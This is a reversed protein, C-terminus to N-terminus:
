LRVWILYGAAFVGLFYPNFYYGPGRPFSPAAWARSAGALLLLIALCARPPWGRCEFERFMRMDINYPLSDFLSPLAMSREVKKRGREWAGAQSRRRRPPM